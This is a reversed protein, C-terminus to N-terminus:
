SLVHKTSILYSSTHLINNIALKRRIKGTINKYKPQLSKIDLNKLSQLFKPWKNTDSTEERELDSIYTSM